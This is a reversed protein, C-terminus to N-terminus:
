NQSKKASDKPNIENLMTRKGAVKKIQIDMLRTNSPQEGRARRKWSMMIAPNGSQKPLYESRVQEIQLFPEQGQNELENHPSNSGQITDIKVLNEDMDSKEPSTDVDLSKDKASPIALSEIIDVNEEQSSASPSGTQGPSNNFKSQTKRGVAGNYARLWNGFQFEAGEERMELCDKM